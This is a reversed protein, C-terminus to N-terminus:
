EPLVTEVAVHYIAVDRRTDTVLYALLLEVVPSKPCARASLKVTRPPSQDPALNLAFQVTTGHRTYEGTM